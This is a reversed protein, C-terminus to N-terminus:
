DENECIASKSAYILSTNKSVFQNSSPSNFIVSIGVQGQGTTFAEHRSESVGEMSNVYWAESCMSFHM